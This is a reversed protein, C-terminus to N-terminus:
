VVIDPAFRLWDDQECLHFPLSPGDVTLCEQRPHGRIAAWNASLLRVITEDAVRSSEFM